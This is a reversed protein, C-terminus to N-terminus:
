GIECILFLGQDPEELIIELLLELYTHTDTNESFRSFIIETGKIGFSYGHKGIQFTINRQM